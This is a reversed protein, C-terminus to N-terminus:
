TFAAVLAVIPVQLEKALSKISALYKPSKLQGTKVKDTAV